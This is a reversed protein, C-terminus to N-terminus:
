LAIKLNGKLFHQRVRGCLEEAAYQCAAEIMEHSVRRGRRREDVFITSIWPSYRNEPYYDTKLFTCFGIIKEEEVAAFIAEWDTFRKEQMMESLHKGAEKWSCNQSYFILQNWLDTDFRVRLVNM